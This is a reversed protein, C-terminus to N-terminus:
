SRSAIRKTANIPLMSASTWLLTHIYAKSFNFSDCQAGPDRPPPPQIERQQVGDDEFTRSIWSENRKLNGVMCIASM